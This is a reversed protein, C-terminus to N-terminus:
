SGLLHSAGPRDEQDMEALATAARRLADDVHDAADVTDGLAEAVTALGEAEAREQWQRFSERHSANHEVWHPVLQQLKAISDAM